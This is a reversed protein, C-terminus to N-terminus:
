DVYPEFDLVTVDFSAGTPGTYTAQEGKHLGVIAAGLPSQPSFVEVKTDSVGM